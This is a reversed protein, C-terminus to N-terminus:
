KKKGSKYTNWCVMLIFLVCLFLLFPLIYDTYVNSVPYECECEYDFGEKSLKGILDRLQGKVKSSVEMVTKVNGSIIDEVMKITDDVDGPQVLSEGNGHRKIMLDIRSSFFDGDKELIICKICIRVILIAIKAQPVGYSLISLITSVKKLTDTDLKNIEDIINDDVFDKYKLLAKDITDKYVLAAGKLGDTLGDKVDSAFSVTKSVGKKVGKKVSKAISKLVM